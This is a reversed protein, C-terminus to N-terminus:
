PPSSWSASDQLDDKTLWLVQREQSFFVLWSVFRSTTTYFAADKTVDNFTVGFGGEDHTLHLVMHAWVKSPADWDDTHQKTGKKLLVDAFKCDVHQQQLVCRNRLM